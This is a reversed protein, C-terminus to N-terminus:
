QPTAPLITVSATYQHYDSYHVTFHGKAKNRNNVLDEATATPLWFTKDGIKVPAYDNSASLIRFYPEGPGNPINLGLHILQHAAPDVRAVGTLGNLRAPCGHAVGDPKFSIRLDLPAGPVAQSELSFNYCGRLKHTFVMAQINYNFDDTVDAPLTVHQDVAVPKGNLMTYQRSELMTGAANHAIHVTAEATAHPRYILWSSKSEISEHANLSPLTTQYLSASEVLQDVLQDAPSETAAPQSPIAPAPAPSTQAPLQACLLCGCLLVILRSCSFM